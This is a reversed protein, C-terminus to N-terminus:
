AIKGSYYLQWFICFKESIRFLESNYNWIIYVKEKSKLRVIFLMKIQVNFTSHFDIFLWHVM